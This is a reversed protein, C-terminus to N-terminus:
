QAPQRQKPQAPGGLCNWQEFRRVVPCRLGSHIRTVHQSEAVEVRAVIVVCTPSEGGLIAKGWVRRRCIKQSCSHQKTPFVERYSLLKGRLGQLQIRLQRKRMGEEAFDRESGFVNILGNCLKLLLAEAVRQIAADIVPESM